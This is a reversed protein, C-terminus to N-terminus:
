VTTMKRLTKDIFITLLPMNLEFSKNRLAYIIGLIRLILTCVFLAQGLLPVWVFIDCLSFYIGHRLHSNIYSNHENCKFLGIIWLGFIYSLCAYMKTDKSVSLSVNAM